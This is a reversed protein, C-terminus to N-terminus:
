LIRYRGNGFATQKGVHLWEGLRLWPMFPGLAGAYTIAGALGGLKLERAKGPYRVCERWALSSQIPMVADAQRKLDRRLADSLVPQGLTLTSIDNIRAFLNRMLTTFPLSFPQAQTSTAHGFGTYGDEGDSLRLRTDFLLTLEDRQAALEPRAVDAARTPAPEVRATSGAARDCRAAGHIGLSEVGEVTFKGHAAALTTAGMERVAAVCDNLHNVSDGLLTLELAWRQGPPYRTMEDSPSVLMYSRRSDQNPRLAGRPPEFLDRYVPPAVQRLAKGFQGRMMGAKCLPLDRMGGSVLRFRYRGFVMAELLALASETEVSCADM